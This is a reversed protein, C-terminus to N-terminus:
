RRRKFVFKVDGGIDTGASAVWISLKGDFRISATMEVEEIDFSGPQVAPIDSLASAISSAFERLSKAVDEVAARAFEERRSARAALGGPIEDEEDNRQEARRVHVVFGEPADRGSEM